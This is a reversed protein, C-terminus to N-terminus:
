RHLCYNSYWEIHMTGNSNLYFAYQITNWNSNADTASLGIMRQTNTEQVTTQLYGGNSVSQVSFANGDWAGNNLIKTLTNGLFMNNSTSAWAVDVLADTCANVGPANTIILNSVASQITISNSTTNVPVVPTCGGTGPTVFCNLVDNVSLNTNTYTPDNTGVDGGNLKWQYTPSIGLNAGTVTYTGSDFNAVKVSALTAGISFTSVDVFLPTNIPVPVLSTYILVNNKYYKIINNENAIKLVDNIAYTGINGKSTGSEYIGLTGNIQLYFAYEISTYSNNVDSASLGIMRQTNTEQVTTQIYGGNSVSQYSFGNGNWSNNSLAKTLTNGSVANNITSTSNVWVVDAVSYSCGSTGSTATISVDMCQASVDFQPSLLLFTLLFTWFPAKLSSVLKYNNTM